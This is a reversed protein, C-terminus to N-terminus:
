CHYSVELRWHYLCIVVSWMSHSHVAVVEWGVEQEVECYENVREVSVVHTELETAGRVLLSLSVASQFYIFREIDLTLNSATPFPCGISSKLM